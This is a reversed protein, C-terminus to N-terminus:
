CPRLHPAAETALRRRDVKGARTRPLAPVFCLLRPRRSPGLRERLAHAIGAPAISATPVVAAAIRAGYVADPVAFVCADAIGPLERLAREVELPHVNEGGTLIVEDRRGLVHLRGAADIEGLDGTALWGDAALPSDGDLYRTLLTPGRVEIVGDVIRIETGPLPRGSGPEGADALTVASCAETLGYTTLVRVGRAAARELLSPDAHAGGLLVARLCPPPEFGSELLRDLMAPVLSAVTVRDRALSGAIAAADFRPPGLVIAAGAQACRFPISLGGVHSPPLCLLVRDDPSLRLRAAVAAASAAFARRSLVV